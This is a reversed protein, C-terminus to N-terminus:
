KVASALAAFLGPAEDVPIARIDIVDNGGLKRAVIQGPRLFPGAAARLTQAFLQSSPDPVVAPRGGRRAEGHDERVLRVAAELEDQSLGAFPKHTGDVTPLELELAEEPTEDNPTYEIISKLMALKDCGFRLAATLPFWGARMLKYATSGPINCGRELYDRKFDTYPGGLTVNRWEGTERMRLLRVGLEWNSQAGATKVGLIHRHESDADPAFTVAAPAPAVM